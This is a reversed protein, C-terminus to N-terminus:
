GGTASGCAVVVSGGSSLFIGSFWVAAGCVGVAAVGGFVTAGGGCAAEGGSCLSKGCVAVGDVSGTAEGSCGVADIVSNGSGDVVAVVGRLLLVGHLLLTGKARRRNAEYLEFPSLSYVSSGM